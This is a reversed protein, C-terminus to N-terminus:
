QPGKQSSSSLQYYAPFLSLPIQTYLCRNQTHTTCLCLTVNDALHFFFRSINITLTFYSCEYFLIVGGSGQRNVLISCWIHQLSWSTFASHFDQPILSNPKGRIQRWHYKQFIFITDAVWSTM